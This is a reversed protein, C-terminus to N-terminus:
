GEQWRYTDNKDRCTNTPRNWIVANEPLHKHCVTSLSLPDGDPSNAPDAMFAQGHGYKMGTVGEKECHHCAAREDGEIDYYLPRGDQRAPPLPPAKKRITRHISDLQRRQARNM